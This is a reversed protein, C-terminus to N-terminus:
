ATMKVAVIQSRWSNFNGEVEDDRLLSVIDIDDEGEFNILLGVIKWFGTSCGGVPLTLHTWGWVRPPWTSRQHPSKSGPCFFMFSHIWIKNFTRKIQHASQFRTTRYQALVVLRIAEYLAEFWNWFDRERSWFRQGRQFNGFELHCFPLFASDVTM